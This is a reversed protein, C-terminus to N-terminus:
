ELLRKQGELKRIHDVDLTYEMCGLYKGKEDRLAYFEILVKHKETDGKVPLDIWFRATERKGAKMESVIQEVMHLSKQPHCDRFNVGMSTMPRYFLRNNHKNWGAVEDNADIVTIEGPLTEILSKIMEPTLKDFLM